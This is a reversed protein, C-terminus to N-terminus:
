PASPGVWGDTREEVSGGDGGQRDMQESLEWGSEWRGMMWENLSHMGICAQWVNLACLRHPWTRLWFLSLDQAPLWCTVPGEVTLVWGWVLGRSPPPFTGRRM